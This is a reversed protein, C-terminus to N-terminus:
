LKIMKKRNLWASLFIGVSDILVDRLVGYRGLIFNQHYEDSIAYLISISIALALIRRNTLGHERLARILLWALIAYESIHAIKRLIFDWQSPLDSKLFPQNSLFFIFGAWIFVLIWNKVKLSMSKNLINLLNM